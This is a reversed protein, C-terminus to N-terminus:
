KELDIKQIQPRHSCGFLIFRASCQSDTQWYILKVNCDALHKTGRHLTFLLVLLERVSLSVSSQQTDFKCDEVFSFTRDARYVFIHTDSPDPVYLHQLDKDTRIIGSIIQLTDTIEYIHAAATVTPIPRGHFV